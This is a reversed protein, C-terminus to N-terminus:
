INQVVSCVLADEIAV